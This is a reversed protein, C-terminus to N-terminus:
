NWIGRTKDNLDDSLKKNADEDDQGAALLRGIIEAACRLTDVEAAVVNKRAEIDEPTLGDINEALKDIDVQSIVEAIAQCQVQANLLSLQEIMDCYTMRIEAQEEAGPKDQQNQEDM